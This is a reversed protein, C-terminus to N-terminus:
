LPQHLAVLLLDFISSFVWWIILLLPWRKEKNISYAAIVSALSWTMFSFVSEEFMFTRLKWFEHFCFGLYSLAISLNVLVTIKTFFTSKRRERKEAFAEKGGNKKFFDVLFRILLLLFFAVSTVRLTIDM